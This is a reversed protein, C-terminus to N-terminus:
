QKTSLLIFANIWCHAFLGLAMLLEFIEQDNRIQKITSAYSVDFFFFFMAVFLFYLSYRQQPFADINPWIKWGIWGLFISSIEGSFDLKKVFNKM